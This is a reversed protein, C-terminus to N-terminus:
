RGGRRLSCRLLEDVVKQFEFVAGGEAASFTVFRAPAEACATAHRTGETYSQFDQFYQIGEDGPLLNEGAYVVPDVEPFLMADDVYGVVFYVRGVELSSATAYEAWRPVLREVRDVESM